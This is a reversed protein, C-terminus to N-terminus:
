RVHASNAAQLPLRAPQESHCVPQPLMKLVWSKGGDLATLAESM